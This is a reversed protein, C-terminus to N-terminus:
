TTVQWTASFLLTQRDGKGRNQRIIQRVQPIFGWAWGHRDAEDLILVEILNWTM